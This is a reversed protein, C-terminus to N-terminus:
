RDSTPDSRQWAHDGTSYCRGARDNSAYSTPAGPATHRRRYTRPMDPSYSTWRRRTASTWTSRNSSPKSSRWRRRCLGRPRPRASSGPGCTMTSASGTMAQRSSAGSPSRASWAAPDLSRQPCRLTTRAGSAGRAGAASERRWAPWLRSPDRGRQPPAGLACSTRAGPGPSFSWIAWDLNGPSDRTASGLETTRRRVDAYGTVGSTAPEDRREREAFERCILWTKMDQMNEPTPSVRRGETRCDPVVIPYWMASAKQPRIAPRRRSAGSTTTSPEQWPTLPKAKAPARDSAGGDAM